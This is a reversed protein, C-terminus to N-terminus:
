KLLTILSDGFESNALCAWVSNSQICSVEKHSPFYSVCEDYVFLFYERQSYKKYNNKSKKLLNTNISMSFRNM